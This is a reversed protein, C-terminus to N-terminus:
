LRAPAGIAISTSLAKAATITRAIVSRTSPRPYCPIIIALTPGIDAAHKSQDSQSECQSECRGRGVCLGSAERNVTVCQSTSALSHPDNTEVCGLHASLAGCFMPLCADSLLTHRHEHCVADSQLGAPPVSVSSEQGDDAIAASHVDGRKQDTLSHRPRVKAPTETCPPAPLCVRCVCM